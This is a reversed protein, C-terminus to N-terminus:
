PSRAGSSGSISFIPHTGSDGSGLRAALLSADGVRDGTGTVTALAGKTRLYYDLNDSIFHLVGGAALLRLCHTLFSSDVLRRKRHRRKPWPDPYHINIRAACGARLARVVMAADALLLRVNLLGLQAVARATKALGGRYLDVGVHMVSVDSAASALLNEGNGSGIEIVYPPTKGLLLAWLRRLQIFSFARKLLATLSLWESRAVGALAVLSQRKILLM